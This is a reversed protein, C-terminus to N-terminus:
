EINSKSYFWKSTILSQSAWFQSQGAQFTKSDAQRRILKGRFFNVIFSVIVSIIAFNLTIHLGSLKEGYLDRLMKLPYTSVICLNTIAKSFFAESDRLFFALIYIIYLFVFCLIATLILHLKKMSIFTSFNRSLLNIRSKM